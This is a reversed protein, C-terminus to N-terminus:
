ITYYKGEKQLIPVVTNDNSTNNKANYDDFDYKMPHHVITKKTTPEKIEIVEPLIRFVM